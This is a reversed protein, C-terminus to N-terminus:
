QINSPLEVGLTDFLNKFHAGSLGCRKAETLEEMFSPTVNYGKRAFFDSKIYAALLYYSPDTKLQKAADLYNLAQNIDERKALFAKRGRLLCIAAYFFTDPESVNAQFVKGFAQSANDYLRLRLLCFALAVSSDPNGPDKALVANYSAVYKNLSVPSLNTISEFSTVRVPNRCYSCVKVELQAIAGCSYCVVAEGDMKGISSLAAATM